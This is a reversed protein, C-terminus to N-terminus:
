YTKLTIPQNFVIEIESNADILVGHGIVLEGINGDLDDTKIVANIPVVNNYLTRITTFKIQVNSNDNVVNDSHAVISGIITSEKPIIIKDNNKIDEILIATIPQGVIANKSNIEQALIAKISTNAPVLIEANAAFNFCLLCILFLINFAKFM